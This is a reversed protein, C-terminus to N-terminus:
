AEHLQIMVVLMYTAEYGLIFMLTMKLTFLFLVVITDNPYKEKWLIFEGKEGHHPLWRDSLWQVLTM